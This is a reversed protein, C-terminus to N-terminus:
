AASDQRSDDPTPPPPPVPRQGLEHRCWQAGALVTLVGWWPSLTVAAITPTTVATLELWHHRLWVIRM